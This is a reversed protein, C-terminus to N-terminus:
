CSGRRGFFRGGGRSGFQWGRRVQKRSCGSSDIQEGEIANAICCGHRRWDADCNESCTGEALFVGAEVGFEGGGAFDLEGANEVDVGLGGFFDGVFMVGSGERAGVFRNGVAVGGADDSGGGGMEVDRLFEEFGALVDEDFFRHGVVGVLGGFEDAEGLFFIEDELDAVDFAEIGDEFVEFGDGGFGTEDFGVAEGRVRGAAGVDADGEVKHDVVEVDDEGEDFAGDGTNVGDADVDEAFAFVDGVGAETEGVAADGVEGGAADAGFAHAFDADEAAAGGGSVDGEIVAGLFAVDVADGAVAFFFGAEKFFEEEGFVGGDDAFEAAFADDAFGGGDFFFFGEFEFELVEDFADVGVLGWLYGAGLGFV